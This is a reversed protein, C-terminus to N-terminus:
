NTESEQAQQEEESGKRDHQSYDTVLSFAPPPNEPVYVPDVFRGARSQQVFDVVPDYATKDEIM